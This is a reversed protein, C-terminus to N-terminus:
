SSSTPSPHEKVLLPALLLARAIQGLPSCDTTHSLHASVSSSKVCHMDGIFDGHIARECASPALTPHCLKVPSSLPHPPPPSPADSLLSGVPTPSCVFLFSCLQWSVPPPQLMGRRGEWGNLSLRKSRKGDSWGCAGLLMSCDHMSNM